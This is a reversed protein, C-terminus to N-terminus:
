ELCYLHSVTRLFLRGNDVIPTSHSPQNILTRGLIEFEDGAKYVVVDARRSVAFIRDDIRIPSSFFSDRLNGKWIEKGTPADICTAIGGDSVLFLQDGNAVATPVYPISKRIKYAVEAQGNPSSPPRVAAFSHAANGAGCSSFILGGALVPSSITRQPFLDPVQWLTKGSQPDLATMGSSASNFIIQTKGDSGEYLLPTSYSTKGKAEWARDISWITEGTMRDLAHIASPGRCDNAIILMNEFVIPSIGGGHQTNHEGLNRQWVGKGDHGVAAVQFRSADSWAIYAHHEDVAPTASAFSNFKHLKRDSAEFSLSWIEKGTTPDLCILLSNPHGADSSTIYLHENWIIPSSHGDGPLELTWLYDSETWSNPLDPASYVGSGDPGRFRNTNQSDAHTAQVFSSIFILFVLPQSIQKM